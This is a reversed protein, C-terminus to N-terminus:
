GFRMRFGDFPDPGFRHAKAFDLPNQSIKKAFPDRDAVQRVSQFEDCIGSAQRM